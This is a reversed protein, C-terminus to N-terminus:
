EKTNISTAGTSELTWTNNCRHSIYTRSVTIIKVVGGRDIFKKTDELAYLSSVVSFIPPCIMLWEKESSNLTTLGISVLEKLSKIIKFTAFEDSPRFRLQQSMAQLQRRKVEMERLESEHKKLATGLAVELDVAAYVTPAELSPKVMGKDILDTLTRHVDERYTKLLKALLTPSRPGYKLLHLYLQAEKEILGFGILEAIFESDDAM